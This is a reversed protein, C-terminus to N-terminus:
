RLMWFTNFVNKQQSGMKITLPLKDHNTVHVQDHSLKILHGMVQCCFWEVDVVVFDLDEFFIINGLTHLCKAMVKNKNENLKVLADEDLKIVRQDVKILWLLMTKLCLKSFTDQDMLPSNPHKSVWAKLVLRM